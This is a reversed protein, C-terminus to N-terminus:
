LEVSSGEDYYLTTGNFGIIRFEENGTIITKYSRDKVDYMFIGRNRVSYVFQYDNYWMGNCMLERLESNPYKDDISIFRVSYIKKEKNKTQVYTKFESSTNSIVGPKAYNNGKTSDDLSDVRDKEEEFVLDENEVYVYNPLVGEGSKIDELTNNGYSKATM